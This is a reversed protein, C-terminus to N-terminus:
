AEELTFASFVACFVFCFLLIVAVILGYKGCEKLDISSMWDRSGVKIGRKKLVSQLHKERARAQYAKLSEPKSNASSKPETQANTTRIGNGDKSIKFNMVEFFLQHSRIESFVVM